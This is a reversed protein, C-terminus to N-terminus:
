LIFSKRHMMAVIAAIESSAVLTSAKAAGEVVGCVVFFLTWDLIGM